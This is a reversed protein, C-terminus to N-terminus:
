NLDDNLNLIFPKHSTSHKRQRGLMFTSFAIIFAIFVKSPFEPIASTGWIEISQINPNCIFYFYTNEVDSEILFQVVTEANVKVIWQEEREAWLLPKPIIVRCFGLFGTLNAINFRVFPGAIPNFSFDAITFNSSIVVYYEENNWRGANFYHVPGSLPYNDLGMYPTDGIGDSGLQNQFAGYKEDVIEYDSWYNGGSPYGNDWAGGVTILMTQNKNNLFNNHYFKNHRCKLDAIWVGRSNNSIVNGVIINYLSSGRLYIGAWRNGEIMNRFIFTNNSDKLMIGVMCKEIKCSFVNVNKVDALQVGAVPISPDDVTNRITLNAIKVGDNKVLFIGKETGNGDIITSEVGEGVIVVTKNVIIPYSEEVFTGKKILITAGEPAQNIANQISDGVNVALQSVSKSDAVGCHVLFLPLVFLSIIILSEVVKM